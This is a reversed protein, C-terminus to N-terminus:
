THKIKKCFLIQASNELTTSLHTLIMCYYPRHSIRRGYSESIV